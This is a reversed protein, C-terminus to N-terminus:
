QLLLGYAEKPKGNRLHSRVARLYLSPKIVERREPRDPEGAGHRKTDNKNEM